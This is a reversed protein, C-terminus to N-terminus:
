EDLVARVRFLDGQRRPANRLTDAADLGPAPEDARLVAGVGAGADTDTDADAGTGAATDTGTGAADADFGLGGAYGAPAVGSTDLRQLAEFQELIHSLQRAFADTEEETLAIRALAAIHQVQARDIAM